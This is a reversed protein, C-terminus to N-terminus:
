ERGALFLTHARCGWLGGEFSTTGAKSRLTSYVGLGLLWPSKSSSWESSSSPTRHQTHWLVSPSGASGITKQSPHSRM